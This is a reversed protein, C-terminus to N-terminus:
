TGARVTPSLYDGLSHAILIPISILSTFLSVHHLLELIHLHLHTHIHHLLLLSGCLCMYWVLDWHLMFLLWLLLLHWMLLIKPIPHLHWLFRTAHGLLYWVYLFHEVHSM